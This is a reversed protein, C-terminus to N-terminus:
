GQRSARRALVRVGREIQTFLARLEQAARYLLDVFFEASRMQAKARERDAVSMRVGDLREVSSNTASGQELQRM